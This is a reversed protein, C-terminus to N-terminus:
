SRKEAPLYPTVILTPLEIVPVLRAPPEYSCANWGIAFSVALCLLWLTFEISNRLM